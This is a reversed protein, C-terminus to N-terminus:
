QRGAWDHEIQRRDRRALRTVIRREDIASGISSFSEFLARVGGHLAIWGADLLTRPLGRVIFAVSGNKVLARLRNRRCQMPVFSSGHRRATGQFRHSVIADPVYRASWGALRCRWGLDADEFYMFFTKDFVGSPLRVQDLMARRYLAAGATPCFIDEAWPAHDRPADYGRDSASANEFLVLGTSNIRHEEGAFVIHSQLMGLDSAGREAASRLKELWKPDVVTDNNLTAIWAGKSAEIGRNVGEAFGLNEGTPVVTVEPFESELM